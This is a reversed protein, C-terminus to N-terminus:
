LRPFLLLLVPSLSVELVLRKGLCMLNGFSFSFFQIPPAPVREDLPFVGSPFHHDFISVQWNM